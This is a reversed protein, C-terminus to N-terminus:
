KKFENEKRRTNKAQKQKIIGRRGGVEEEKVIKRDISTDHYPQFLQDIQLFSNRSIIEKHTKTNLFDNVKHRNVNDM